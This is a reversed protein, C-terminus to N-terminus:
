EKYITEIISRCVIIAMLIYISFFLLLSNNYLTSNVIQRVTERGEDNLNLVQSAFSSKMEGIPIRPMVYDDIGAVTNPRNNFIKLM